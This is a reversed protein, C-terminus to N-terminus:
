SRVHYRLEQNNLTSGRCSMMDVLSFNSALNTLRSFSATCALCRCPDAFCVNAAAWYRIWCNDEPLLAGVGNVPTMSVCVKPSGFVNVPWGESHVVQCNVNLANPQAVCALILSINSNAVRFLESGTTLLSMVTSSCDNLVCNYEMSTIISLSWARSITRFEGSPTPASIHRLNSQSYTRTLYPAINCDSNLIRNTSCSSVSKARSISDNSRSMKLYSWCDLSRMLSVMLCPITHPPM